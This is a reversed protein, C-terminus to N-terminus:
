TPQEAVIRNVVMSMITAPLNTARVVRTSNNGQRTNYEEGERGYCIPAAAPDQTSRQCLFDVVSPRPPSRNNRAVVSKCLLTAADQVTTM